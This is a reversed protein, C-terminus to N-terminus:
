VLLSVWMMLDRMRRFSEGGRIKDLSDASDPKDTSSDADGPVDVLLSCSRAGLAGRDPFLLCMLKLVNTSCHMAM